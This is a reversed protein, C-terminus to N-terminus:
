FRQNETKWEYRCLLPKRVKKHNICIDELVSCYEAKRRRHFSIIQEKILEPYYLVRLM